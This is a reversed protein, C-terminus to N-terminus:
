AGGGHNFGHNLGHGGYGVRVMLDYGQLSEEVVASNSDEFMSKVNIRILTRGDLDYPDLTLTEGEINEYERILTGTATYLRLLTTVGAPAAVGPEGWRFVRTDEMNRNRNAWTVTLDGGGTVHEVLDIEGFGFGNVQVNAPRIPKHPRNTVTMDIDAADELGLIGRSTRPLIRYTVAEGEARATSDGFPVDLSVFWMPTGAPWDRPVTDLMGRDLTWVDNSDIDTLFAIEQGEDNGDDPGIIVFGELEPGVGLTISGFEVLSQAAAPMPDLLTTRGNLSREGFSTYTTTGGVTVTEAWLEFRYTDSGLSSGIIAAYNNLPDPFQGAFQALFFAPATMTKVFDIPEPDEGDQHLTNPPTFYAAPRYGFIDEIIAARIKSDNTKGYDIEGVRFVVNNLGRKTNSVKIVSGPTLNWAKRNVELTASALPAAAARCDRQAVRMALDANRIGEYERSDSVIQGQAIINGLEQATVTADDETAPNKWSVVIENVTEGWTKRQFDLLKANSEDFHPLTAVDYDDRLLKITFLGTDPSVYVTAQIHDIVNSVFSEISSQQFWGISLGFNEDFLTQAANIFSQVDMATPAAGMGWDANTLCDFIIHAPNADDGIMALEDPLLQVFADATITCWLAKLYPSNHSWVFGPLNAGAQGQRRSPFDGFRPIDGFSFEGSEDAATPGSTSSVLFVSAIGRFGPCTATTRGLRAALTEPMVQDSQGPLFWVTGEVGGEKFKGGFLDPKSLAIASVGEANGAWAEKEAFILRRLRVPGHCIGFHTSLRYEAVKMKGGGKGGGGM